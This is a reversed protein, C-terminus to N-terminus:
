AANVSYTGQPGVFGNGVGDFSTNLSPALLSVAASQRVPDASRAADRNFRRPIPKVEHEIRRTERPPLPILFLPPSTDHGSALTIEPRAHESPSSNQAEGPARGACASLALPVLLGAASFRFTTM